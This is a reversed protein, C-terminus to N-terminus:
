KKNIWKKMLRDHKAKANEYSNATKANGNKLFREKAQAMKVGAVFANNEEPSTAGHGSPHEPSPTYYFFTKGKITKYPM